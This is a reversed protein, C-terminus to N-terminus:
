VHARGIELGGAAYIYITMRRRQTKYQNVKKNHWALQDELRYRFYEEGTLDSFGSDSNPDESNFNPPIAGNYEEFAFEGSLSRFLQRQIENLRKELYARRSTNKQLITRFFYSEKLIEEAGARYILWSGNSYYKSAFSALISALVPTAIFIIKVILGILSTSDSFYTQTMIAFFTALIGLLIIWRRINYFASTRRLAAADLHAYRTWAINLIPTVQQGQTEM